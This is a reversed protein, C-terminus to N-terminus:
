IFVVVSAFDCPLPLCNTVFWCYCVLKNLPLVLLQADRILSFSNYEGGPEKSKTHLFLFSMARFSVVIERCCCSAISDSDLTCRWLNLFVVCLLWAYWFRTQENRMIAWGCV